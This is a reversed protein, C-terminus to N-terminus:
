KGAVKIQITREKEKAMIKIQIPREQTWVEGEILYLQRLVSPEKNLM